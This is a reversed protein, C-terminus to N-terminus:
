NNIFDKNAKQQSRTPMIISIMTKSTSCFNYNNNSKKTDTSQHQM